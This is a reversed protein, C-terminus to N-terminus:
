LIRVDHALGFKAAPVFIGDTAAPPSMGADDEMTQRGDLGEVVFRGAPISEPGDRAAGGVYPCGKHNGPQEQRGLCLCPLRALILAM